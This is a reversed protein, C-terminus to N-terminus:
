NARLHDVVSPDALTSNDGLDCVVFALVGRGKIELPMGFVVAEAMM